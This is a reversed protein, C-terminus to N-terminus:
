VRASKETCLEAKYDDMWETIGSLGAVKITTLVLEQGHKQRPFHTLHIEMTSLSNACPDSRTYGKADESWGAVSWMLLVIVAIARRM